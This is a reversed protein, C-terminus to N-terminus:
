QVGAREQLLETVRQLANGHINNVQRESKYLMDAIEAFTPYIREQRSKVYYGFYRLQLVRLQDEDRIELLLKEAELKKALMQKQLSVIETRYDAIAASCDGIKDGGGSHSVADLRLSSTTSTAILELSEVEERLHKIHIDILQIQKLYEKADTMPM